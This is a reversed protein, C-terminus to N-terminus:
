KPCPYERAMKSDLHPPAKVVFKPDFNPDAKFVRMGCIISSEGPRLETVAKPLSELSAVQPRVLSLAPRIPASPLWGRNQNGSITPVILSPPAPRVQPAAAAAALVVLLSRLM